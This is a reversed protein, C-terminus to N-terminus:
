RTHLREEIPLGKSCTDYSSSIAPLPNIKVSRRQQVFFLYIAVTLHTVIRFNHIATAEWQNTFLSALKTAKMAETVDYYQHHQLNATNYKHKECM